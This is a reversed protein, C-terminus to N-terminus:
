GRWADTLAENFVDLVTVRAPEMLQGDPTLPIHPRAPIDGWLNPFASKTGGFHQMAAYEMVNGFELVGSAVNYTVGGSLAGTEGILPKKAM